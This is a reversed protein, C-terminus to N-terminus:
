YFLLRAVLFVLGLVCLLLLSFKALQKTFRLYRADGTLFYVLASVVISILGLALLLRLLWM